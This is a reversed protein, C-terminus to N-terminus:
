RDNSLQPAVAIGRPKLREHGKRTFLARHECLASPQRQDPQLTILRGYQVVDGHSGRHRGISDTRHDPDISRPGKENGHEIMMEGDCTDIAPDIQKIEGTVFQRGGLAVAETRALPLDFGGRASTRAQISARSVFQLSPGDICGRAHDM